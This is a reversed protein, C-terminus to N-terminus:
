TSGARNRGVDLIEIINQGLGIASHSTVNAQNLLDRNGYQWRLNPRTGELSLGRDRDTGDVM